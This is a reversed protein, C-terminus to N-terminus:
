ESKIEEYILVLEIINNPIGDDSIAYVEEKPMRQPTKQTIESTVLIPERFSSIHHKELAKNIYRDASISIHKE